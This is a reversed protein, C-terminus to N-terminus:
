TFRSSNFQTDLKDNKRAGKGEWEETGREWGLRGEGKGEWMAIDTEGGVRGHGQGTIEGSNVKDDVGGEM